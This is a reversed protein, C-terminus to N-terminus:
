VPMIITIAIIEQEAGQLYTIANNINHSQFEQIANDVLMKTVSSLKMTTTTPVATGLPQTYIAYGYLGVVIISQNSQVVVAGM